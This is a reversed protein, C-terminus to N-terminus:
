RAEDNALAGEPTTTQPHQGALPRGLRWKLNSCSCSCSGQAQIRAKTRHAGDARGAEGGVHAAWVGESACECKYM